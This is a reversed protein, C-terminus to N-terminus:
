CCCDVECCRFSCVHEPIPVDQHRVEHEANEDDDQDAFLALTLGRAHDGKADQDHRDFRKREPTDMVVFEHADRDGHRDVGDDTRDDCQVADVLHRPCPDPRQLSHQERGREVGRGDHGGDHQLAGVLGLLSAKCCRAPYRVLCASSYVFTYAFGQRESGM